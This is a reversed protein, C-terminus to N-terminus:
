VRKRQVNNAKNGYEFTGNIDTTSKNVKCCSALVMKIDSHIKQISKDYSLLDKFKRINNLVSAHHCKHTFKDSIGYLTLNTETHLFYMIAQRVEVIKNHRDRNDINEYTTNYYDCVVEIITEATIPKSDLGAFVYPSIFQAKTM